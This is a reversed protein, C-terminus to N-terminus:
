EIKLYFDRMLARYGDSWVGPACEVALESREVGCPPEGKVLETMVRRPPKRPVTRVATERVPCLGAGVAEAVFRRSEEPPLIVALRGGPELLAAAGAALEAHSLSATHRAATRSADPCLLSGVFYPPNSVILDYREGSAAYEQLAARWVRCRDGWPSAAFNAAACRCSEPVIDIADVRASPFRQAAMLAILGTGTGVDLVRRWDDRAAGCWAGLLAGDTGVKMACGSQNVTFRKFRFEDCGM